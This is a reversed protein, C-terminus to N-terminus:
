AEGNEDSRDEDAEAGSAEGGVDPATGASEKEEQEDENEEGAAEEMEDEIFSDDGPIPM